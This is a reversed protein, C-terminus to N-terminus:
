VTENRERRVPIIPRSRDATIIYTLASSSCSQLARLSVYWDSDDSLDDSRVCYDQLFSTASLTALRSEIDSDFPTGELWLDICTLKPFPHGAPRDKAVASLSEVMGVFVHGDLFDTCRHLKFTQLLPLSIPPTAVLPNYTLLTFFSNTLLTGSNLTLHILQPLLRIFSVVDDPKLGIHILELEELRFGSQAHLDFLVQGDKFADLTFSKLNPFSFPQFFTATTEQHRTSFKISRMDPLVRIPLITPANDSYQIGVVILTQLRQAQLVIASCDCGFSDVLGILEPEQLQYHSDQIDIFLSTLLPFTNNVPLGSSRCENWNLKLHIRQLKHCLPLILDLPRFRSSNLLREYSRTNIRFALGGNRARAAFTELNLSKRYGSANRMTLITGQIHIQDWLQSSILNLIMEHIWLYEAAM